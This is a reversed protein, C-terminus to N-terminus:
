EGQRITCGAEKYYRFRNQFFAKKDPRSLDEFEYLTKIEPLVKCPEQCLNFVLPFGASPDEPLTLLIRDHFPVPYSRSLPLFSEKPRTLFIKELFTLAKTDPTAIRIKEGAHFSRTVIRVLADIKEEPTKVTLIIVNM